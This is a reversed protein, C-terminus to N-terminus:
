NLLYINTYIRCVLCTSFRFIDFKKSKPFILFTASKLALCRDWFRLYIDQSSWCNLMANINLPIKNAAFYKYEQLHHEAVLKQLLYLETQCEMNCEEIWNTQRVFSCVLYFNRKLLNPGTTRMGKEWQIFAFDQAWGADDQCKIEDNILNLNASNKHNHFAWNRTM